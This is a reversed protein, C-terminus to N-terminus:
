VGEEGSRRPTPRSAIAVARSTLRGSMIAAVVAVVFGGCLFRLPTEIWWAGIAMWWEARDNLAWFEPNERRSQALVEDIREGYTKRM